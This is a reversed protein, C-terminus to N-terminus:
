VVVAYETQVLGGPYERTGVHRLGIDRQLAGFLPIGDGILVPVRTIILRQVLGAQLFRQITIGGDVYLHEVGRAALDSLVQAEPGSVREVAADPFAPPEIPRNSLVFVSKGPYPWPDFSRVKDYTNRGLAVADVTEMFAGYSPNGAPPLWDLDGNARAIFGDVSTGVFASVRM